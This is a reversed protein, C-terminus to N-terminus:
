FSTGIGIGFHFRPYSPGAAPWLKIEIAELLLYVYNFGGIAQEKSGKIIGVTSLLAGQQYIAPDLFQESRVLFRGKSQDPNEPRNQNNLPMQLVMLESSTPTVNIEIIKGGFIVIEDIFQNPNEQLESFPGMYTVKSLSQQSLGPSCGTLIIAFLVSLIPKFRKILMDTRRVVRNCAPM